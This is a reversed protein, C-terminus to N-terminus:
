NDEANPPFLTGQISVIAVDYEKVQANLKRNVQAREAELEKLEKYEPTEMLQEKLKEMKIDIESRHTIFGARGSMAGHFHDFLLQYCKWQFEVLEAKDSQLSFLWGYIVKEPLAFMKRVRGDAAVMESNRSLQGLIPHDLIRQNQWNFQIDLAECIPKIAVYWEGNELSTSIKRGNFIPLHDVAKKM